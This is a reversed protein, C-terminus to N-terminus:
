VAAKASVLTEGLDKLKIDLEPQESAAESRTGTVVVFDKVDFELM